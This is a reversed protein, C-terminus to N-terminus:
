YRIKIQQIGHCMVSDTKHDRNELKKTNHFQFQEWYLGAMNCKQKSDNLTPPYFDTKKLYQEQDSESIRTINAQREFTIQTEHCPTIFRHPKPTSERM